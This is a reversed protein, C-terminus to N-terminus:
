LRKGLLGQEVLRDTFDILDGRINGIACNIIYYYASFSYPLEANILDPSETDGSLSSRGRM